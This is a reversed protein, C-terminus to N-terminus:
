WKWKTLQVVTTWTMGLCIHMKLVILLWNQEFKCKKLKESTLLMKAQTELIHFGTIEVAM